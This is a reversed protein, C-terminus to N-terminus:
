PLLFTGEIVTVCAGGLVVRDGELRCSLRGGRASAQYASMRDRGLREARVDDEDGCGAHRGVHDAADEHGGPAHVFVRHGSRRMGREGREPCLTQAAVAEGRKLRACAAPMQGARQVPIARHQASLAHRHHAALQQQLGPKPAALTPNTAIRLRSGMERSHGAIRHEVEDGDTLPAGWAFREGGGGVKGGMGLRLSKVAVPHGFM